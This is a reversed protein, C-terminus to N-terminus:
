PFRSRLGLLIAIEVLSLVTGIPLFWLAGVAAAVMPKWAGAIGSLFVACLALWSWGYAAFVIRM